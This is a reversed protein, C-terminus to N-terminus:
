LIIESCVSLGFFSSCNSNWFILATVSCFYCSAISYNIPCCFRHDLFFPSDSNLIRLVKLRTMRGIIGGLACVAADQNVSSDLASLWSDKSTKFYGKSHILMRIHSADSFDITSLPTLQM